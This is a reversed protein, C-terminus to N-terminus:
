VKIREGDVEIVPERFVQDLHIITKIRGGFWSNSGIAVHATGYAKEDVITTGIISAKKNLGIGLEGLTRIREPYKARSEAWALSDELQHANDGDIIKKVKGKVVKMTIPNKNTLRTNFRNRSSGDIVVKGSANVPPIYVEGAPLNGGTGPEHYIGDASRAKAGKIDIKLDTGAKTTIHVKEGNDLIEKLKAHEKIAEDYDIDIANIVDIIKETYIYGLSSTSIFRHGKEKCLKRFSRGLDNLSGMKDSQNAIIISNKRLNKLAKVINEDAEQGRTKQNQLAMNCSFGLRKATLYYAHSLVMSIEQGAIGKDGVILINENTANLCRKFVIDLKKSADRALKNLNSKQPEIFQSDM